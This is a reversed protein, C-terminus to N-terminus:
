SAHVAAESHASRTNRVANRLFVIMLSLMGGVVFASAAILTRRPKSRRKPPEARDIVRFAFEEKGRALMLKQMEDEMIRGLSEELAFIHNSAIEKRLYEINSEAERLARGRMSNNVREVLTNAWDAAAASDTWQVSVIIKGTDRDETVRMVNDHFFEVADRMDLPEGPDTEGELFVDLLEYDSIFNRAFERSKLVAISENKINAGAGARLGAIAALGGLQGRIDSMGQDDTPMLTTEARYWQTAMLAYAVAIATLLGTVLIIVLRGEWVVDWLEALTIEDGRSYPRPLKESSQM